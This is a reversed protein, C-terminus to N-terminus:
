VLTPRIRNKRLGQHSTMKPYHGPKDIKGLEDRTQRDFEPIGSRVIKEPSDQIRGRPSIQPFRDGSFQGGGLCFGARVSQGQLNPVRKSRGLHLPLHPRRTRIRAEDRRGLSTRPVSPSRRHIHGQNAPFVPEFHPHATTKILEDRGRSRIKRLKRLGNQDM